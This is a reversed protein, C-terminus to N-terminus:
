GTVQSRTLKPRYHQQAHEKSTHISLTQDTLFLCASNSPDPQQKSGERKPSLPNILAYMLIELKFDKITANKNKFHL